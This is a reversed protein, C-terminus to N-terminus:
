FPPYSNSFLLTPAVIFFLTGAIGERSRIHAAPSAASAHAAAPPRAAPRHAPAANFYFFLCSSRRFARSRQEGEDALSEEINYM